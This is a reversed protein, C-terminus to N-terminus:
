NKAVSKARSFIQKPYYGTDFSFALIKFGRKKLMYLMDSSDKGGSIGAMIDYKKGTGVFSNFFKEERKLSGPKFYKKYQHCIQCLGDKGIKVTPNLTSNVCIKCEEHNKM